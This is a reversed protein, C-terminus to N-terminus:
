TVAGRRAKWVEESPWRRAWSLAVFDYQTNADEGPRVEVLDELGFGSRRLLRVTDGRSIHFEVSESDPWELRHMDFAPRLLREAVPVGDEDPLCLMLLVSNLMFILQGGPRLLRAAEPIWRYPDCWISAGHESIALDFRADPLPVM